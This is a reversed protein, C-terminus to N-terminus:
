VNVEEDLPFQFAKRPTGRDRKFIYEEIMNIVKLAKEVSSYLGANYGTNSEARGALVLYGSKKKRKIITFDDCNVLTTQDQTKIWM